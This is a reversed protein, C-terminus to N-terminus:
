TGFLLTGVNLIVMHFRPTHVPLFNPPSSRDDLSALAPHSFQRKDDLVLKAVIKRNYTSHPAARWLFGRRPNKKPDSTFFFHLAPIFKLKTERSRGWPKCQSSVFGVLEGILYILYCFQVKSVVALSPSVSGAGVTTGCIRQQAVFHRAQEEGIQWAFV